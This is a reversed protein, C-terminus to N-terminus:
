VPSDLHVRAPFEPCIQSARSPESGGSRLFKMAGSQACHWVELAGADSYLATKERIEAETNGPSLVEV